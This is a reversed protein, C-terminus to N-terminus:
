TQPAADRPISSLPGKEPAADSASFTGRGLAYVTGAQDRITVDAVGLQRGVRQAVGDALLDCNAPSKLFDIRMNATPTPRGKIISCAMAGAIDVLSALVGGHYNGAERFITYAPDFPLHLTVRGSPDAAVAEVKVLKHFEARALLAQLEQLTM